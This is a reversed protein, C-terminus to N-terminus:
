AKASSLDKKPDVAKSQSDGAKSKPKADKAKSVVDKITLTDESDKTKVSPQVEKDKGSRIHELFFVNEVKRLEFDVPVGARNLAEVWTEACYDSCVGAVEEALRTETEQVGREYSAM